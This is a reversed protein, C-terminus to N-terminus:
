HNLKTRVDLPPLINKNNIFKEKLNRIINNGNDRSKSRYNIIKNNLDNNDKNSKINIDITNLNLKQNRSFYNKKINIEKNETKLGIYEKKPVDNNYKNLM